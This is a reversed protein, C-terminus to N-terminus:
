SVFASTKRFGTLNEVISIINPWDGDLLLKVRGRAAKVVAETIITPVIGKVVTYGQEVLEARAKDILGVFLEQWQYCLHIFVSGFAAM